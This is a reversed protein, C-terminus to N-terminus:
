FDILIRNSGIDHSFAYVQFLFILDKKPMIQM